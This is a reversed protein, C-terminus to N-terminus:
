DTGSETEPRSSAGTVMRVICSRPPNTTRGIGSEASPRSRSINSGALTLREIRNDAVREHLRRFGAAATAYASRHDTSMRRSSNAPQTARIPSCDGGRLEVPLRVPRGVTSSRRAL